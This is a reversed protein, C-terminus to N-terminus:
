RFVALLGEIIGDYLTWYLKVGVRKREVAKCCVITEEWAELNPIDKDKPYM